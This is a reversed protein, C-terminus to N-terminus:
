GKLKGKNVLERLLADYRAIRMSNRSAGPLSGSGINNGRNIIDRFLKVNLNKFNNPKKTALNVVATLATPAVNTGAGQNTLQWIAKAVVLARTKPDKLTSARKELRSLANKVPVNTTGNVGATTAATSISKYLQSVANLNTMANVKANNGAREVLANLNKRNPPPSPGAKGRASERAKVLNFFKAYQSGPTFRPAIGLINKRNNAWTRKPTMAALLNLYANLSKNNTRGLLKSVRIMARQKPSKLELIRNLVRKEASQLQNYRPNNQYKLVLSSSINRWTNSLYEINTEAKLKAPSTALLADNAFKQWAALKYDDKAKKLKELQEATLSSPPNNLISEIEVAMRQLVRANLPSLNPNANIWALIGGVNNNRPTNPWIGSVPSKGLLLNLLARKNNSSLSSREVMQWSEKNPVRSSLSYLSNFRKNATANANEILQTLVGVWLNKYMPDPRRSGFGGAFPRKLNFAMNKSLNRTPSNGTISEIYKRVMQQQRDTANAPINQFMTALSKNLNNLQKTGKNIEKAAEGEPKSGNLGKKANEVVVEITGKAKYKAAAVAKALNKAATKFNSNNAANLSAIFAEAKNKNNVSNNVANLFKKIAQKLNTTAAKAQAGKLIGFKSASLGM